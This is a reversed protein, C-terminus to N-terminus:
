LIDLIWGGRGVKVAAVKTQAGADRGQVMARVQIMTGKTYSTETSKRKSREQRNEM